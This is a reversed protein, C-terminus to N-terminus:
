AAMGAPAGSTWTLTGAGKSIAVNATPINDADPQNVPYNLLVGNGQFYGHAVLANKNGTYFVMRLTRQEGNLIWSRCFDFTDLELAAEGSITWDLAGASRWVEVPAGPGCVAVVNTTQEGRTVNFSRANMACLYEWDPAATTGQNVFIGLTSIVGTLDSFDAM